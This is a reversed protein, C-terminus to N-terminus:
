YNIFDIEAKIIELRGDKQIFTLIDNIKSDVLKQDKGVVSLGLVAKQWLDHEDVEALSVKRFRSEIKQTLAKLVQRKAKLSNPEPIFLEIKAIGVVM